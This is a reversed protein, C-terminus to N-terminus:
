YSFGLPDNAKILGSVIFLPGVVLRAIFLLIRM